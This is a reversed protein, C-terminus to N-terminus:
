RAKKSTDPNKYKLVDRLAFHLAKPIYLIGVEFIEHFIAYYLTVPYKHIIVYCLNVKKKFFKM